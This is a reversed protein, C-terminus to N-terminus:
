GEERKMHVHPLPHARLYEWFDGPTSSEKLATRFQEDPSGMPDNLMLTFKFPSQHFFLQSWSGGMFFTPYAEIVASRQSARGVPPTLVARAIESGQVVTRIVGERLLKQYISVRPDLTAYVQDGLVQVRSFLEEDKLVDAWTKGKRRLYEQVICRKTPWDLWGYLSQWDGARLLGAMWQAKEAAVQYASAEAPSSWTREHAYWAMADTYFSLIEAATMHKIGGLQGRGPLVRVPYRAILDSEHSIFNMADHCSSRWVVPLPPRHKLSSDQWMLLLLGTLSMKLYTSWQCLNADGCIVHLRRWQDKNAHPEDRVQILPRQSTTETGRYAVIFDSRQSLQFASGDGPRRANDSGIKGAGVLLQRVAFWTALTRQESVVEPETIIRAFFSPNVSYNEHCGWTHNLGDTLKKVILVDYHLRKAVRQAAEYVIREGAGDWIVVDRPTPCEPTSLEPHQCDIYFRSGNAIHQFSSIRVEKDVELQRGMCGIDSRVAKAIEDNTAELIKKYENESYPFVRKRHYIGYETEIGM